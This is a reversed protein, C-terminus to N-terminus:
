KRIWEPKCYNVWQELRTIYFGEWSYLYRHPYENSPVLLDQICCYLKSRDYKYILMPHKNVQASERLTQEWFQSLQPNVGTLYTSSLQDEAYHKVEICYSNYEGPVYLDGKLQHVANLAGSAPIREFQLGSLKRLEDRVVTEARAGKQRSDVM